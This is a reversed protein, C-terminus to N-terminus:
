VAPKGTTWRALILLCILSIAGFSLVLPVVDDHFFRGLGVGIVVSIITQSCGLLASGMGAVRGLPQMALANLNGFLFGVSLFTLMMYTMFVALPPNGTQFKLLYIVFLNSLIAMSIFATFILRRMGFKMVLQSNFFSATGLSLALMGFYLPFREAANFISAFIDQVAGLYGIFVGFLLGSSVMCAITTTHSFTERADALIQKVSPKKRLNKPLTEQQRLGFWIWTIVGMACLAIFIARWSAFFLIGQGLSPAVAPVLIFITMILSTIQAMANGVYQDRVLAISIVRPAAGGFGQLFRGLLFLEYNPAFGSLIAGVVFTALGFYIPNKRGYVDSLPGFLLQGLGFGLFLIAVILQTQDSSQLQYTEAINPFAPLMSDIALAIIATLFAMLAVFESKSLNKQNTM